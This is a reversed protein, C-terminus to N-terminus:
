RRIGTESVAALYTVQEQFHALNAQVVRAVLDHKLIDWEEQSDRLEAVADPKHIKLWARNANSINIERNPAIVAPAELQVLDSGAQLFLNWFAYHFFHHFLHPQDLGRLWENRVIVCPLHMSFLSAKPLEDSSYVSRAEATELNIVRPIIVNGVLEGPLDMLAAGAELFLTFEATTDAVHRDLQDFVDFYRKSPKLANASTLDVRSRTLTTEADDSLDYIVIDVDSSSAPSTEAFQTAAAVWMAERDNTRQEAIAHALEDAQVESAESSGQKNQWRRFRKVIERAVKSEGTRFQRVGLKWRQPNWWAIQQYQQADAALDNLWGELREVENGAKRAQKVKERLALLQQQLQDLNM